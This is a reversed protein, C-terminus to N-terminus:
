RLKKVLTKKLLDISLGKTNKEDENGIQQTELIYYESNVTFRIFFNYYLNDHLNVKFLFYVFNTIFLSAKKYDFELQM